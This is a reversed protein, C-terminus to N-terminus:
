IKITAYNLCYTLYFTQFKRCIKIIKQYLGIILSICPNVKVSIDLIKPSGGLVTSRRIWLAPNFGMVRSAM